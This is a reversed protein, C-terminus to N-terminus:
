PSVLEMYSSAGQVRLLRERVQPEELFHPRLPVKGLVGRWELERILPIHQVGIKGLFLPELEGGSTLYDLLRLVGRLYVADKTLGGGRFIRTTLTYGDHPSFDHQRTVLRFTEVFDAGDTCAQAAVVRGALTRMRARNLGGVLYESLVALGEQLEDYGVLGLALLRFPQSRGNYYTLVHTGVEHALLAEVRDKPVTADTNILLNGHSVMMGSYIDPRLQVRAKLGPMTLGYRAILKRALEAFHLADMREGQESPPATAPLTDLLWRAAALVRRPIAGYLQQSGLLFQPTQLDLLMTLQRDLALQNERFISELMPDGVREVPLSFLKRKMRLPDIALPRYHFEPVRQYQRGEFEQWASAADVPTVQLLFDFSETLEALQVDVRTVEASFLRRGLSRFSAPPHHTHNQAFAHFTRSLARSLGHRLQKLALPYVQQGRPDRFIPAVSIGLWRCRIRALEDRDLLPAMGGPLVPTDHTLEVAADQRKLSLRRLELALQEAAAETGKGPGVHVVFQPPAPAARGSRPPGAWIEVLLFDGFEQCFYDVLSSVLERLEVAYDPAGSAIIFAAESTVLRETGVDREGPPRRYLCICPLPRDLQLRGGGIRRRVPRNQALRALIDELQSGNKFTKM